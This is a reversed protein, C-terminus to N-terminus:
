KQCQNLFEYLLPTAHQWLHNAVGNESYSNGHNYQFLSGALVVPVEVRTHTKLRCPTAHDPLLMVQIAADKKQAERVPGVVKKDFDEIAKVKLQPDGMHGAEDPAEIHIYVFDVTELYRLATNVKAQYDTDLFGTAGPINPAEMGCLKALGKLLDVATIMAGKLGYRSQFSPLKPSQGQSWPWIFNAPLKNNQRRKINIPHEVLVQRAREMINIMDAHSDGQPLAPLIPKDTIDHPATCELTDFTKPMTVIHRYSVGTHFRIGEKLFTKNLAKLLADAEDTSIHDATFSQMIEAGKQGSITTLNCRFIVEDNNAKIGLSAAEIPGRGTYYDKPDYGLIGMNAVDSGPYFGEQVTQVRGSKGTQVLADMHPTYAAQLPSQNKLSAIPEDAMGDGLCLIFKNKQTM